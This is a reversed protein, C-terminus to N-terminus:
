WIYEEIDRMDIYEGAEGYERDFMLMWISDDQEEAKALEEFTELGLAVKEPWVHLRDREWKQMKVGMEDPLGLFIGEESVGYAEMYEQLQTGFFPLSTLEHDFRFIDGAEADWEERIVDLTTLDKFSADWSELKPPKLNKPPNTGYDSRQEGSHELFTFPIITNNIATEQSNYGESCGLITILDSSRRGPENLDEGFFVKNTISKQLSREEWESLRIGLSLGGEVDEVLRFERYGFGEMGDSSKFSRQIREFPVTWGGSQLEPDRTICFAAKM